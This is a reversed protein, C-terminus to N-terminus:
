NLPIHVQMSVGDEVHSNNHWRYDFRVRPKQGSIDGFGLSMQLGHNLIWDEAGAASTFAEDDDNTPMWFGLGYFTSSNHDMLVPSDAFKDDWHLWFKDGYSNSDIKWPIANDHRSFMLSHNINNNRDISYIPASCDKTNNLYDISFPQSVTDLSYYNKCKFAYTSSSFMFLLCCFVGFSIQKFM